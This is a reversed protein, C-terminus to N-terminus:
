QGTGTLWIALTEGYASSVKLRGEHAGSQKPEFKVAVTCTGQSKLSRPVCNNTESFDGTSEIGDISLPGLTKNTLTLHQAESSTGFPQVGFQLSYSSSAVPGVEVTVPTALQVRGGDQEYTTIVLVVGPSKATIEGERGVQAVSPNTSRYTVKSSDRVDITTGDRFTAAPELSDSGDPSRFYLRPTDNTLKVPLDPREVDIEIPDSHLNEGSTPVGLATMPYKGCITNAPIRVTLTAPMETPGPIMGIPDPGVLVLMKLHQETSNVTVSLADGPHVITGNAPATIRLNQASTQPLSCLGGVILVLPVRTFSKSMTARGKLKLLFLQLFRLVADM